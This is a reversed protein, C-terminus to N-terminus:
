LNEESMNDDWWTLERAYINRAEDYYAVILPVGRDSENCVDLVIFLEGFEDCWRSGPRPLRTDM